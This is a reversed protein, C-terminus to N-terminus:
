FYKYNFWMVLCVPFVGLVFASFSVRCSVIGLMQIWSFLPPVPFAVPRMVPSCLQCTNVPFAPLRAWQLSLLSAKFSVGKGEQFDAGRYLSRPPLACNAQLLGLASSLLSPPALVSSELFIFFLKTFPSFCGAACIRVLTCSLQAECCHTILASLEHLAVMFKSFRALM